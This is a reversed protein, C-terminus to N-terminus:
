RGGSELSFVVMSLPKITHFVNSETKDQMGPNVSVHTAFGSTSVEKVTYTKSELYKQLEHVPINMNNPNIVVIDVTDKGRMVLVDVPLDGYNLLKKYETIISSEGIDACIEFLTKLVLFTESRILGVPRQSFIKDQKSVDQLYRFSSPDPYFLGFRLNFSHYAAITVQQQMIFAAYLRSMLLGHIMTNNNAYQGAKVVNFETVWIEKGPFEAAIQKFCDNYGELAVKYAKDFGKLKKLNLYPHTIVAQFPSLDKESLYGNWERFSKSRRGRTGPVHEPMITIGLPLENGINRLASAIEMSKKWYGAVGGIRDFSLKGYNENGLELAVVPYKNKRITQVLRVIKDTPDFINIVYIIRVGKTKCSSMFEEWEVSRATQKQGPRKPVVTGREWDYLNAVTGGPFRMLGIRLEEAMQWVVDHQPGLPSYFFNTNVGSLKSLDRAFLDKGSFGLVTLLLIAIKLILKM